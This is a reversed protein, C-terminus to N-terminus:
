LCRASCASACASFASVCDLLSITRSAMASRVLAPCFRARSIASSLPGPFYVFHEQKVRRMEYNAKLVAHVDPLGLNEIFTIFSMLSGRDAPRSTSSVRISSDTAHSDMTYHDCNVERCKGVDVDRPHVLAHYRVGLFTFLLKPHLGTKQGRMSIGVMGEFEKMAPLAFFEEHLMQEALDSCRMIARNAITTCEEFTAADIVRDVSIETLSRVRKHSTAPRGESESM